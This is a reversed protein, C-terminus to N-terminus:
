FDDWSFKHRLSNEFDAVNGQVTRIYQWSKSMKWNCSNSECTNMKNQGQWWVKHEEFAWLSLKGTPLPYTAVYVGVKYYVKLALKLYCGVTCYQLWWDNAAHGIFKGVGNLLWSLIPLCVTQLLGIPRLRVQLCDSKQLVLCSKSHKINLIMPAFIVIAFAEAFLCLTWYMHFLLAHYFQSGLAFVINDFGWCSALSWM